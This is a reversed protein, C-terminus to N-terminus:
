HLVKITGKVSVSNNLFDVYEARYFYVGPPVKNGNKTTADWEIMPNATTFVEQGWRNYIKTNLSIIGKSEIPVFLDNIADNNPTFVNPLSFLIECDQEAINITDRIKGACNAVEVWYSGPATAEFLPETSGDQWLYTSGPAFADLILTQEECLTTDNGLSISDIESPCAYIVQLKPHLDSNPHDSSALVVGRYYIEDQLSLRIGNNTGRVQEQIIATIDIEYDEFPEDITSPVVIMSQSNVAPQNNWTITSEEWEEAVSQVALDNREFRHYLNAFFSEENFSLYLKAELINSNGPIDSLDFQIFSRTLGEDFGDGFWTWALADLSPINGTNRDPRETWVTADKGMAADPQVILTDQASLHCSSIFAVILLIIKNYSM